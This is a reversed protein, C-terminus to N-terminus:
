SDMEIVVKIDDPQRDFAEPFEALPARRTLMRELTGPGAGGFGHRSGPAGVLVTVRRGPGSGRRSGRRTPFYTGAPKTSDGNKLEGWNPVPDGPPEERM